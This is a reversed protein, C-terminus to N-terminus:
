ESFATQGCSSLALIGQSKICRCGNSKRKEWLLSLWLPIRIISMCHGKQEHAQNSERERYVPRGGFTHSSAWGNKLFLALLHHLSYTCELLLASWCCTWAAYYWRVAQPARPICSALREKQLEEPQFLVSCVETLRRGLHTLVIPNSLFTM